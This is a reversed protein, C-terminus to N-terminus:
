LDCQHTQCYKASDIFEQLKSLPIIQLNTGNQVAATIYGYKQGRYFQDRGVKTVYRSKQFDNAINSSYINELLKLAKANKTTFKISSDGSFTIGEKTVTGNQEPVDAYFYLNGKNGGYGHAESSYTLTPLQPKTKAWNLVTKINQGPLANAPAIALSVALTSM